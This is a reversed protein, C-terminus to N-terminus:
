DNTTNGGLGLAIECALLAEEETEFTEPANDRGSRYGFQGDPTPFVAVRRNGNMDRKIGPGRLFCIGSPARKWALNNM